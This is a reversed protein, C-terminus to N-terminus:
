EGVNKSFMLLVNSMKEHVKKDGKLTVMNRTMQSLSCNSSLQMRAYIGDVLYYGKEFGAGNVVFPAILAIGDLLDDFLPSNNMQLYEDFVDPSIGYALQRIASTCKMITSFSMQGTADPRISKGEMIKKCSYWAYCEELRIGIVVITTQVEKYQTLGTGSGVVSTQTGIVHAESVKNCPQSGVVQSGVMDAQSGSAQGQNGFVGGTTGVWTVTRGKKSLKGDKVMDDKDCLSKPNEKLSGSTVGEFPAQLYRRYTDLLQEEEIAKFTEYEYLIEAKRDQEGYESGCMKREFADWLDKATENSDILSYIDNSIGQIWLSRALRDIKRTKKESGKSDSSVVVKEKRKSVNTKEVVFALPDSHVMVAKKKYGLDDNVYNDKKYGCKKLDHIVQLYRCYTDLLQEEEIAKFTEYEYLIKAKRDQEGYESGCMKREFADWVDKATENSDILSYIDNSLGQIWLSRALRDIKRTKKEKATWFKPDKLTPPANQANGDTQEELHNM